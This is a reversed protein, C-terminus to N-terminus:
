EAAPAPTEEVLSWHKDGKYGKQAQYDLLAKAHKRTFDKSEIGLDPCKLKVVDTDPAAIAAPLTDPTATAVHTKAMPSLPKLPRTDPAPM